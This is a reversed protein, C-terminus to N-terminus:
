SVTDVPTEDSPLEETSSIDVSTPDVQTEEPLPSDVPTVGTGVIVMRTTTASNGATDITSYTIVYTGDISVDVGGSITVAVIGDIDDLATAGEEDYIDGLVLNIPSDGNLTIVPAVIDGNSQSSGDSDTTTTASSSIQSDCTGLKLNVIGTNVDEVELCGAQGNKDYITIGTPKSPNGVTLTDLVLNKMYAIGNEVKVLIDSFFLSAYEGYDNITETPSAITGKELNSIKIDLEQIAQVLYPVLPAYSLSKYGTTSNTSVMEPFVKEFDQAIFGSVLSDNEDQWNYHFTVPNIETLKSLADTGLIEVIDNKLRIDSACSFSGTTTSFTCTNGSTTSISVVATDGALGVVDLKQAPNTTGIGVNGNKLVTLANDKATTGTGIGIEFLPDTAVWIDATGGGVNYRGLSFSLYNTTTGQGFAASWTGGSTTQRNFAASQLGSATVGYGGGVFSGSGSATNSSGFVGSDSGSATNDRGAVFSEYGSAINRYGGAFSYQASAKTDQGYAFSYIGINADDWYDSHDIIRGVRFAGKASIWMLRTGSGSTPTDGINGSILLSDSFVLSSHSDYDSSQYDFSDNDWMGCPTTLILQIDNTIFDVIFSEGMATIISGAALETTFITGSGTVSTSSECTVTGTGTGASGVIPIGAKLTGAVDLKYGPSTIGIGVNGM